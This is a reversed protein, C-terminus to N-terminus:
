FLFFNRCEIDVTYFQFLFHNLFTWWLYWDPFCCMWNLNYKEVDDWLLYFIFYFNNSPWKLKVQWIFVFNTIHSEVKPIPFFLIYKKINGITMDFCFQISSCGSDVNYKKLFSYKRKTLNAGDTFLIYEREKKKNKMMDYSLHRVRKWM